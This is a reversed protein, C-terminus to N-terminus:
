FGTSLDVPWTKISLSERHHHHVPGSGTRAIKKLLAFLAAYTRRSRAIM